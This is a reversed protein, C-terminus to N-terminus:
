RIVTVNGKTYYRAGDVCFATLQYVYVAPEVIEGKFTADWGENLSETKFVEEGWRNYVSFEISRLYRGRVFLKDNLGDGNPTFADPVFIEPDGCDIEFVEVRTTDGFKCVPFEEDTVEWFFTTSQAMTAVPDNITDTNLLRNPTWRGTFQNGLDPEGLLQVPEFFFAQYKEASAVVSAPDLQSVDVTMSDQVFCDDVAKSLALLHYTEKEFPSVDLFRRNTDTLYPQTFTDGVIQASTWLYLFTNKPNRSLAQIRFTDNYCIFTDPTLRLDYDSVTVLATDHNQCGNPKTAQFYYYNLGDPWNGVTVFSDTSIIDQFLTDTSWVYSTAEGFSTGQLLLAASNSCVITDESVAVPFTDVDVLQTIIEQCGGYDIILTFTAPAILSVKPNLISPDNLPTSPSWRIDLRPDYDSPDPGLTVEQNICASIPPLAYTTDKEIVIVSEITDSLNCSAPDNLVLKITFTGSNNFTFSPNPLISVLANSVFWQYSTNTQTISQNNPTVTLPACGFGPADFDAIILPLEFDMKFVGLNCNSSGNTESFAGPDPKIPFDDQGGCGACVAQYIKGSRDFRSTGGDVHETSGPGGYFSGYLLSNGDSSLVMLYFDSGTFDTSSQFADFTVDMGITNSANNSTGAGNVLGGWGSLYVSNCVDVLFATPSINPQGPTSGFQTSWQLGSLDEQFSTVFQGGGVDFYAVNFILSAGSHETQGFIHPTGDRDVRVFYAQDYTSTGFFTSHLLDDGDASIHSLFADCRGQNYQTDFSGTTVPFNGSTTGGAVYMSSDPAFDISFIADGASGGLFASWELASLQPNFKAIVGNQLGVLGTSVQANLEPFDNSRSCSAIYINDDKGINIEGRAEDAYNYRLPGYTNLGDTNSGGLFTSGFLANGNPSLATVFMDVGNPFTVGLSNNLNVAPGGGFSNDFSGTGTPFDGSGTTGLIYLRGAEDTIMSHPMESDSGGLFTSYVLGTGTENFKTIAVDATGGNFAEDWAGVTTPYLGGFATSGGYLNGDDDFTATYGFNDSLSGSFTSFILEPDILLPLDPDYGDPFAYRVMNESLSFDCAVDYTKKGRKQSAVPRNELVDEISTKLILNENRDIFQGETGEIKLQIIDPSIGAKLEFEYKVNSGNVYVHMNVGDYVDHFTIQRFAKLDSKWNKPDNGLFYNNSHEHPFAESVSPLPNSGVLKLRFAHHHVMRPKLPNGNGIHHDHVESMDRLHFLIGDNELYVFGANIEARYRFDGKWQGQNEVFGEAAWASVSSTILLLLFLLTRM